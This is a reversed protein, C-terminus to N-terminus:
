GPPFVDDWRAYWDFFYPVDPADARDLRTIRWVGDIPQVQFNLSWNPDIPQGSPV